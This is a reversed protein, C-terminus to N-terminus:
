VYLLGILIASNHLVLTKKHLVLTKNNSRSRVEVPSYPISLLSAPLITRSLMLIKLM